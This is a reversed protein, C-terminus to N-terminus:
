LLIIVERYIIPLNRIAEALESTDKTQFEQTSQSELQTFSQTLVM